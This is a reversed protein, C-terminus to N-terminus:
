EDLKLKLKQLRGFESFSITVYFTEDSGRGEVRLRSRFM